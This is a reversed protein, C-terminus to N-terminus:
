GIDICAMRRMLHEFFRAVARVANALFPQGIALFSSEVRDRSCTSWTFKDRLRHFQVSQAVNDDLYM